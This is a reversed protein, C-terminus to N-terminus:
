NGTQRNYFPGILSLLVYLTGTQKAQIYDGRAVLIGRKSPQKWGINHGNVIAWM